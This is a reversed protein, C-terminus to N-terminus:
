TMGVLSISAICYIVTVSLVTGLVALPLNRQPDKAEAALCCVEDYGVRRITNYYLWYVCSKLFLKLFMGVFGFFASTTGRLIGDMGKPAWEVVNSPRFLVLGAMVMFMVLIIKFVTFINVVIRGMEVGFLLLAVCAFQIVGAFINIGYGPDFGTWM